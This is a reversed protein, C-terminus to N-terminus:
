SFTLVLSKCNGILKHSPGLENGHQSHRESCQPRPAEDLARRDHGKRREATALIRVGFSPRARLDAAGFSNSASRLGPGRFPVRGKDNRLASCRQRARWERSKGPPPRPKNQSFELRTHRRAARDTSCAAKLRSTPPELGRAGFRKLSTIVLLEAPLAAAKSASPRLNSGQRTLSHPHRLWSPYPAARCFRFYPPEIGGPV